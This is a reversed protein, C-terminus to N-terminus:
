ACTMAVDTETIVEFREDTMCQQDMTSCDNSQAKYRLFHYFINVELKLMRQMIKYYRTPNKDEM